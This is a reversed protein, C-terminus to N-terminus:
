QERCARLEGAWLFSRGRDAPSSRNVVSRNQFDCALADGDLANDNRAFRPIQM